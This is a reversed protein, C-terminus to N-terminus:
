LNILALNRDNATGEPAFAFKLKNEEEQGVTGPHRLLEPNQFALEPLIVLAALRVPTNESEAPPPFKPPAFRLTM